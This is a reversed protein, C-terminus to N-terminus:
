NKTCIIADVYQVALNISHNHSGGGGANGSVWRAANADAVVRQFVSSCFQTAITNEGIYGGFDRLISHDHVPIQATTLTTDGVNQSSFATTFAVSGGSSASGSVVRLAKNNHTTSKTWNTPATTQQFLVATGSDFESWTGPNNLTLGTPLTIGLSGDITTTM